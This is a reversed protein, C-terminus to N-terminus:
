ILKIIKEVLDIEPTDRRCVGYIDWTYADKIPIAKMRDTDEFFKPSIGIGIGNDVLQRISEGESVKAVIRPAFGNMHCANIVDQYIRYKEGMSIVPEDKIDQLEIENLDWFRHGKYVYLVVQVSKLKVSKLANGKPEGIVFGFGLSNDEVQKLVGDNSQEHWTAVIEPNENMLKGVANVNIARITGSAFGLVFRHERSNVVEISSILDNIDKTIIKSKEYFVRGSETPVFGEKTRIFLPAGIEEEISKIIKSVGQPSLFLKSAALQLNQEEYVAQFCKFNRTNM